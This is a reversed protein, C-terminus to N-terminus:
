CTPSWSWSRALHILRSPPSLLPLALLRRARPDRRCPRRCSARHPSIKHEPPVTILFSPIKKPEEVRNVDTLGYVLTLSLRNKSPLAATLALCRSFKSPARAAPERTPRAKGENGADRGSSRQASERNECVIKSNVASPRSGEAADEGRGSSHLYPERGITGARVDIRADWM